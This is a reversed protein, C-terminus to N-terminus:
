VGLRFTTPKRPRATFIGTLIESMLQDRGEDSKMVETLEKEMVNDNADIPASEVADLRTALAGLKESFGELSKQLQESLEKVVSNDEEKTDDSKAAESASKELASLRGDISSVSQSIPTVMEGLIARLEDATMDDGGRENDTDLVSVKDDNEAECEASDSKESVVIGLEKAAAIVKSRAKDGFKSQSLRALANRVHAADLKGEKNRIPFHRLSRPTTKGEEDKKGGPEIYAFASDPLANVYSSPWTAKETDRVYTHIASYATDGSANCLGTSKLLVIRNVSDDSAIVAGAHEKAADIDAEDIREVTFGGSESSCKVFLYADKPAVAPHILGDLSDITEPFKKGDTLFFADKESTECKLVEFLADPHAPLFVLSVEKLDISGSDGFLDTAYQTGRWSFANLRNAEVLNAVEPEDVRAQAWLGFEGYDVISHGDEVRVTDIVEGSLTSVINLINPDGSAAVRAPELKEVLGINVENGDPRKWLTHNIYLQPNRMFSPIDFASTHIADGDRDVTPLSVFGHVRLEGDSKVAEFGTSGMWRSTKATTLM